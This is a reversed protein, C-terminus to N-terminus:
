APNVPKDPDVPPDDVDAPASPVGHSPPQPEAGDPDAPRTPDEEAANLPHPDAPEAM